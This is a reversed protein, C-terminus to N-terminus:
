SFRTKKQLASVPRIGGRRTAKSSIGAAPAAGGTNPANRRRRAADSSPSTAAGRGHNTTEDARRVEDNLFLTEMQTKPYRLMGEYASVIALEDKSPARVRNFISAAERRGAM